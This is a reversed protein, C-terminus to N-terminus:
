NKRMFFVNLIYNYFLCKWWWLFVAFKCCKPFIANNQPCLKTELVFHAKDQRSCERSWPKKKYLWMAKLFGSPSVTDCKGVTWRSHQWKPVVYILDPSMLFDHEVRIGWARARACSTERSSQSNESPHLPNFTRFVYINNSKCHGGCIRQTQFEIQLTHNKINKGM